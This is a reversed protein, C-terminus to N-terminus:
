SWSVLIAMLRCHFHSMTKMKSVGRAADKRSPPPMGLPVLVTIMQPTKFRAM